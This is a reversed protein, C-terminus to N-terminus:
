QRFGTVVIEDAPADAAPQAGADQAWASAPAVIASGAILALKFLTKSTHIKRMEVGEVGSPRKRMIGTDFSSTRFPRVLRGAGRSGARDKPRQMRVPMTVPTM